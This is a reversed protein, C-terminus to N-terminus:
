SLVALVVILVVIVLIILTLMGCRNRQRQHEDAKKLQQNAKHMNSSLQTVNGDITDVQEGQEKVLSGLQHFIANVEQVASHIRTIQESREQQIITEFDVDNQSVQRQQQKQEELLQQQQRQRQQNSSVLPTQENIHLSVYNSEAAPQGTSTSDVHIEKLPYTVKQTEYSREVSILETKLIKFDNYLKSGEHFTNQWTPQNDDIRDRLENCLPILDYEIKKRTENNDRKSGIKRCERKLTAIHNALTNLLDNIRPINNHDNSTPLQEINTPIRSSQNQAELDFFSM